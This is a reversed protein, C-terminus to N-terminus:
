RRKLLITASCLALALTHGCASVIPDHYDVETLLPHTFLAVTWRGSPSQSTAVFVHEPLLARAAEATETVRPLPGSHIGGSPTRWLGNGPCGFPQWQWGIAQLVSASLAADGAHRAQLVTVLQAPTLQTGLLAGM